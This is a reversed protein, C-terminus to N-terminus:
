GLYARVAAEARVINTANRQAADPLDMRTMIWGLYTCARLARILPWQTLDIPRHREYGQLLAARLAPDDPLKALATALDFLRYGFCGDDFDILAVDSGHALVNDPIADAHILGTDLDASELAQWATTRFTQMLTAQDATLAPNDWFRGWLPADGLLGQATWTPRDFGDPLAWADSALHLAALEAGLRTLQGPGPAVLPAGSLWTVMTWCHGGQSVVLRGDATEVPRPVTMGRDSLAMMWVLESWLQAPSRYGVRHQRLAYTEAGFNVRFVTNERRAVPTIVADEFGGWHKLAARAEDM